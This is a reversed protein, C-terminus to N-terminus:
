YSAGYNATQVKFEQIADPAPIATGVEEGDNRASNQPLNNADIGNFQINNL